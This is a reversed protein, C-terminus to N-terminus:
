NIARIPISNIYSAVRHEAQAVIVPLPDPMV